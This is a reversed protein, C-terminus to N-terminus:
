LQGVNIPLNAILIFYILLEQLQQATGLADGTYGKIHKNLWYKLLYRFSICGIFLYFITSLPLLLCASAGTVLVFILSQTTMPKALPESKSGKHKDACPIQNSVYKMDQVLSIALARSLPYALVLALILSAQQALQWWLVFKTLLALVLGCTGYTGIRSDKMIALKRELSYGGWIGDCIDALGDEHLAGTLLISSILLLCLSPLLGLLPQLISFELVLIGAILWGVLPFFQSARRMKSPSYHCYETVPLRTFFSTALLFLNFQYKLYSVCAMNSNFM